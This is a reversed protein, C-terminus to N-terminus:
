LVDVALWCHVPGQAKRKPWLDAATSTLNERPVDESSTLFNRTALAFMLQRLNAVHQAVPLSDPKRPNFALSRSSAPQYKTRYHGVSATIYSM